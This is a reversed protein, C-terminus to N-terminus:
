RTRSIRVGLAAARADIEADDVVLVGADVLERVLVPHAAGPDVETWQVPEGDNGAALAAGSAHGGYLRVDGRFGPAEVDYRAIEAVDGLALGTEERVERRLADEFSEGAEVGGGPLLWSGKFPGGHQRVLLVRGRDDRTVLIASPRPGKHERREARVGSGDGLM